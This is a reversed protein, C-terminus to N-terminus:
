IKFFLVILKELVFVEIDILLFCVPFRGADFAKHDWFIAPKNQILGVIFAGDATGMGSIGFLEFIHDISASSDDTKDAIALHEMQCVKYAIDGLEFKFLIFRRM